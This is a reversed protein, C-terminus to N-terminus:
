SINNLIDILKVTERLTQETLAYPDSYKFSPAPQWDFGMGLNVRLRNKSVDYQISINIEFIYSIIDAIRALNALQPTFSSLSSLSAFKRTFSPIRSTLTSIEIEGAHAFSYVKLSLVHDDSYSNLLFIVVSLVHIYAKVSFEFSCMTELRRSSVSTTQINFVTDRFGAYDQIENILKQTIKTLDCFLKGKDDALITELLYPIHSLVIYSEPTINDRKSRPLDHLYLIEYILRNTLDSYYQTAPSMFSYFDSVDHSLYVFTLETDMVKNKECFAYRLPSLGVLPLIIYREILVCSSIPRACLKLFDNRGGVSLSKLFKESIEKYSQYHPIEKLFGREDCVEAHESFILCPLEM